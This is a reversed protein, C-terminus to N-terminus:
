NLSFVIKKIRSNKRKEWEGKFPYVPSLKRAVDQKHRIMEPRDSKLYCITLYVPECDPAFTVCHSAFNIVPM